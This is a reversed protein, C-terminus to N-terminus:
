ITAGAEGTITVVDEAGAPKLLLNYTARSSVSVKAAQQVTKTFGSAEVTVDYEGPQLATIEYDGNAGTTVTKEAGTAKSKATVTAGAVVAGTQDTITGVLSGSAVQAIVSGALLLLAFVAMVPLARFSFRQM